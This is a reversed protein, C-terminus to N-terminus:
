EASVSLATEIEEIGAENALTKLKDQDFKAAADQFEREVDPDSMLNSIATEGLMEFGTNLGSQGEYKLVAVTESRCDIFMLRQYLMAAKHNYARRQEPTTSAISKVAASASLSSFMSQMLLTQDAASSKRVLCKGLDDTYAGAHAVTAPALIAAAIMLHLARM